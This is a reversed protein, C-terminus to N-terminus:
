KNRVEIKKTDILWKMSEKVCEQMPVNVFNLEKISKKSTTASDLFAVDVEEPSLPMKINFLKSILGEIEGLLRGLFHPVIIIYYTEDGINKGIEDVIEKFYFYDNGLIYNEGLRGKETAVIHADAIEKARGYSLRANGSGPMEKNRLLFAIRAYGNTDYKGIIASPNMITAWLGKKIGLKVEYEALIKSYHYGHYSEIALYESEETINVQSVMGAFTSITSTHILKKVGRELCVIVVNRTGLVNVKYMLDNEDSYQSLVAAVHFVLSFHIV